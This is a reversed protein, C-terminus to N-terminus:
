QGSGVEVHRVANKGDTKVAYMARDAEHVLTEVDAPPTGFSVAGISATVRTADGGAELLRTRLKLLAAEAAAGGTEPLLVVFEDGGLRAVLDTSRSARRLAHAVAVLVRDGRAHGLRDNVAKFDDLDVYAVTLPRRYRASRALEVAAAEYFGRRNPLGTLDDTRSLARERERWRRQSAGLLAVAGFAIGMLVLNALDVAPRSGKMGALRNSVEWAVACLASAALGPRGGFRLAVVLVPLFYLPFVLLEVGTAHDVWAVGLVLAAAGGLVLAAAPEGTPKVGRNYHPLANWARGRAM